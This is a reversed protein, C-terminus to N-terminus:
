PAASAQTLGGAIKAKLRATAEDDATALAASWAFRAEFRRGVSYLADGLHEQIEAQAPDGVAAKQLVDIAEKVQGRKYLAWGLSDTISADNPALDSAKRIMAEASDLNEGHQLEAYGLFNLILPESPALAIASDLAKKAEPWRGANQLASAQLLLLPWVHAPDANPARALAQAYAAAAENNRKMSAYVDGLRAFDDSQAHPAAAARSALAFAEDLRKSDTLVRAQADLAESKLPDGDPVSALVALADDVREVDSLVNGLLIAASSSDPAAFRAIQMIGLPDAPAHDSNRMQLALAVLQDSFARAATDIAVTKLRGSELSQRVASTDGSIGDLMALARVKDGAAQFGAAMALRVRYERSGASGIARRAYPEAEATKGLKLLILASEEDVFAAFASDRPVRGLISLATASDRRDATQWAEVLPQWFSLNPGTGSAALYRDADAENGRRLADAVLLLKSDVSGTQKSRTILQLALPIQGAGIAESIARQDLEKDNSRGALAAYIQAAEVHDGSISAARAAVYAKAPDGSPSPV